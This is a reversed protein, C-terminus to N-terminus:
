TYMLPYNKGITNEASMWVTATQKQNTEYYVIIDISKGKMLPSALYINLSDGLEKNEERVVYTLDEDLINTV